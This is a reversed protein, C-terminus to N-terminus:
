SQRHTSPCRAVLLRFPPLPPAVAPVTFWRSTTRPPTTERVRSNSHHLASVVAVSGRQDMRPPYVTCLVSYMPAYYMTSFYMIYLVHTGLVYTCLVYYMTYLVYTCLVHYMPVYYMTCLVHTYLVYYVTHGSGSHFFEPPPYYHILQTVLFSVIQMHAHARFWLGVPDPHM